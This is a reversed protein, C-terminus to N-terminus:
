ITNFYTEGNLWSDIKNRMDIEPGGIESRQPYPLEWLLIGTHCRVDKLANVQNELLDAENADAVQQRLEDVIVSLNATIFDCIAKTMQSRPWVRLRCDCFDADLGQARLATLPNINTTM